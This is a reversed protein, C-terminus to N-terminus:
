RVTQGQNHRKTRTVSSAHVTVLDTKGAGGV